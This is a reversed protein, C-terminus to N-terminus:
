HYLSKQYNHPQVISYIINCLRHPNYFLFMQKKEMAYKKEQPKIDLHQGLWELGLSTAGCSVEETKDQGHKETKGESAAFSPGRTSKRKVLPSTEGASVM